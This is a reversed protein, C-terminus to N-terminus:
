KPSRAKLVKEADSHIERRYPETNVWSSAAIGPTDLIKLSQKAYQHALEEQGDALYADALSDAADASDPYALLNLKFVEIATKVDHDRSFDQAVISMSVEPWLQAKPEQKRAEMLQQRARQVGGNFEVDNLIQSAAIPDAPASGPTKELTNIFWQEVIQSLEPRTEFLDTGHAGNAPVRSADSTEYWVWPADRAANYHILKKSTSVSAAYLLQMAQQTPPYEDEDSFVFLEPLHKAQHLFQLGPRVTEGSLLVLSKLQEPHRRAAEVAHLVGLWGAGAVGVDRPDVGPQSTLYNLATDVDDPIHESDQRAGGSEGLGRMDVTLTNIGGSALRTAISAWSRRDRNSQHLLLAAPGPKASAFFTAKLLTGDSATLEVVRPPPPTQAHGAAAVLYVLTTILVPLSFARRRMM